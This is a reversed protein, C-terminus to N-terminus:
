PSASSLSELSTGLPICLRTHELTPAHTHTRCWWWMADYWLIMRCLMVDYMMDCWRCFSQIRLLDEAFSQQIFIHQPMFFVEPFVIKDYKGYFPCGEKRLMFLLSPTKEGFAWFRYTCLNWADCLFLNSCNVHRILQEMCWITCLIM